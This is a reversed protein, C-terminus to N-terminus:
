CQLLRWMGRSQQLMCCAHYKRHKLSVYDAKFTVAFHHLSYQPYCLQVVDLCAPPPSPPNSSTWPGHTDWPFSSITSLKGMMGRTTTSCKVYMLVWFITVCLFSAHCMIQVSAGQIYFCAAQGTDLMCHDHAFRCQYNGGHEMVGYKRHTNQANLYALLM